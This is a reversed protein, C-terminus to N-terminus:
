ADLLWQFEGDGGEDLVLYFFFIYPFFPLM